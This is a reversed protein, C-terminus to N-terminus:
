KRNADSSRQREWVYVYKMFTYFFSGTAIILGPVGDLFGRKFLYHKAFAYLPHFVIRAPGSKRGEKLYADAGISAYTFLRRYHDEISKYSYHRLDGPIKGAPGDGELYEHLDHGVWRGSEKRVVRLRWEPYWSHEIWKGLYYAKRNVLYSNFEPSNVARILNEKLEPSVEEDCDLALIWPCTCKDLASNKQAAYGKWDELYVKAGFNRAIRVTSDTSHSDVVVIESAIDAVSELCRAINSEEDRSIISISLPLESM